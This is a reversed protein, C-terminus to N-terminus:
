KRAWFRCLVGIVPLAPVSMKCATISKGKRAQFCPVTRDEGPRPPPLLAVAGDEWITALLFRFIFNNVCDFYKKYIAVDINWYLYSFGKASKYSDIRFYSQGWFYLFRYAAMSKKKWFLKHLILLTWGCLGLNFGNLFLAYIARQVSSVLNLIELKLYKTCEMLTSWALEVDIVM